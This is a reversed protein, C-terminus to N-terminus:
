GHEVPHRSYGGWLWLKRHFREPHGIVERTRRAWTLLWPHGGKETETLLQHLEREERIELSLADRQMPVIQASTIYLASLCARRHPCNDEILDVMLPAWWYGSMMLDWDQHPAMAKKDYAWAIIQASTLAGDTQLYNEPSLM